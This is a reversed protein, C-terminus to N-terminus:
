LSEKCGSVCANSEEKGCDNSESMGRRVSYPPINKQPYLPRIMFSVGDLQFIQVEM